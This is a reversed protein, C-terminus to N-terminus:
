LTTFLRPQGLVTYPVVTLVRYYSEVARLVQIIADVDQHMVYLQMVPIVGSECPM